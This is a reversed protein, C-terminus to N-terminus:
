NSTAKALFRLEVISVHGVPSIPDTLKMYSSRVGEQKPDRPALHLAPYSYLPVPLAQFPEYTIHMINNWYFEM